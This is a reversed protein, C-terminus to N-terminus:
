GRSRHSDAYRYSAPNPEPGQNEWKRFINNCEWCGWTGGAKQDANFKKQNEVGTWGFIHSDAYLHIIEEKTLSELDERSFLESETQDLLPRGPEQYTIKVTM